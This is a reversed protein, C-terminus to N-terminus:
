LRPTSRTSASARFSRRCSRSVGRTVAGAANPDALPASLVLGALTEQHRVAYAVSICGGMSHGLLYVPAAPHREAALDVFARLDAVVYDLRDLQARKGESRGHGRHDLAYVAYGASVLREAVHAYRGSHESAGHVIVVLARPGAEPLWARWYLDLGGTGPLRGEDHRSSV